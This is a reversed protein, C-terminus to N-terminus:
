KAKVYSFNSLAAKEPEKDLKVSKYRNHRFKVTIM